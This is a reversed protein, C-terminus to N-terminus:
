LLPSMAWSIVSIQSFQLWTPKVTGRLLLITILSRLSCSLFQITSIWLRGPTVIQFGYGDEEFLPRHETKPSPSSISNEQAHIVYKEFNDGKRHVLKMSVSKTFTGTTLTNGRPELDVM